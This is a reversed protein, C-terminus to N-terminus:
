APVPGASSFLDDQYTFLFNTSLRGSRFAPHSLVARLLKLNTTIGAIELRHLADDLRNMAEIRTDAHAM